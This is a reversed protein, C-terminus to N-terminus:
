AHQHEKVLSSGCLQCEPNREILRASDPVSGDLFMQRLNWERHRGCLITDATYVILGSVVQLVDIIGPLNCPYSEDNLFHPFMCGWCAKGTEQVACYLQNADRSVAAHIVPIGHAIGFETVAIRTPNNDVGCIILNSEPVDCIEEMWEQFRFPLAHISTPFLGHLRLQKGLQVVKSKGLDAKFFYQRTLNPLEIFDDDLMTLTGLGKRVLGQAVNSGIGGAGILLVHSAQYASRDFGHVMGQSKNLAELDFGRCPKTKFTRSRRQFMM